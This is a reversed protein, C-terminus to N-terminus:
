AVETTRPTAAFIAVARECVPCCCTPLRHGKRQGCAFCALVINWLANPGGMVRPIVHDETLQRRAVQEPPRKCYHCVNGDREILTPRRRRKRDSRAKRLSNSM